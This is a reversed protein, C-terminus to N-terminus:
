SDLGTLRGTSDGFETVDAGAGAADLMSLFLNSLPTHSEWTRHGGPKVAGGGSGALLLPLDYHDHRNGDRIASGYLVLSHDLLNGDGEPTDRLKRLFKAFQESYFRDIKAISAIKAKDGSHHSLHHHGDNVGLEPYTRNSGANALMFTGVRTVDTQFALAILEYMLAIHEATEAPIGAPLRMDPADVPPATLTREIRQEIDRVSTFYEDLKRRDTVGVRTKLAAADDAVLDLISKRDALRREVGDGGGTGFLREFALKPNIEKATPQSPTKWSINNSYACSYGTDCAGANRGRDVGLELSPLRTDRGVREAAVQDISKGARIGVGDTKFPHRGTLFTAANRAHDGGGDGLSAANDQALGSLVTLDGRYEALPGLTPTVEWDGGTKKPFWSDVAAGNPFFIWALRVPPGGATAGYAAASAPMADLLPLAMAAGAGALFRRRSVSVPNTIVHPM